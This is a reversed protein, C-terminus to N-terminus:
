ISNSFYSAQSTQKVKAQADKFPKLDFFMLRTEDKCDKKTFFDFGNKIYFGTADAYADVTIFRCGTRNGNTFAHKIFDIIARGIGKNDYDKSVALRGIKVSPYTKRRKNNSIKRNIRNWFSRDEPDYSVKDNLLSFYAVTKQAHCDVLLYTVAMLDALYNKADDFLFHNLEDDKCSFPLIKTGENLSFLNFSSIDM